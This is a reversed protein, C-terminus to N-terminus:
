WSSQWGCGRGGQMQCGAGTLWGALAARVRSRGGVQRCQCRGPTGDGVEGMAQRSESESAWRSGRECVRRCCGGQGGAGEREGRM